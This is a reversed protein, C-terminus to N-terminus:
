DIIVAKVEFVDEVNLSGWQLRSVTSLASEPANKQVFAEIQDGIPNSELM